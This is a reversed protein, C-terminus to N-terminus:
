KFLNDNFCNKILTFIKSKEKFQVFLLIELEILKKQEKRKDPPTLCKFQSRALPSEAM